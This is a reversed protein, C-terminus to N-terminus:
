PALAAAIAVLAAIESLQQAAGAIDGTQGGILRRSLGALGSVVALSAIVAWAFALAPLGSVMWLPLALLATLALAALAVAVGPRGVAASAGSARATPLMALVRVGEARSLMAAFLIAGLAADLGGAKLIAALAATRLLLSLGIACGAFVGIRSDKMIELRREATHGGFLGDASDGLGDEHFAGTAIVMAAVALAAALLPDLRLTAALTLVATAPLAILLAAVPLGLPEVTFDPPAHKDEEWPLAPTPLRSYFRVCRLVATAFRRPDPFANASMVHEPPASQVHDAVGSYCPASQIRFRLM